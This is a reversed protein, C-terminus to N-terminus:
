QIKYDALLPRHPSGVDPGVWCSVCSWGSGTLIHDIRVDTRNTRYTWGYGLGAAPFADTLSSFANRFVPSDAPLNFDGALMVSDGGVTALTRLHVAENWRADANRRLRNVGFQEGHVVESLSNHPSALHVNYLQIPGRPLDVTYGYYISGNVGTEVAPGTLRRAPYRTALIAMNDPIRTSYAPLGDFVYDPNTNWWEQLLVVDPQEAAILARLASPNFGAFHTNLTLVRLDARTQQDGRPLRSAHFGMIPGAILLVVIFLPWLLGRKLFFALAVLLGAPFLMPWRPAFLMMTALWWRDGVYRM